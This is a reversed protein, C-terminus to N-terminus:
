EKRMKEYMQHMKIGACVLAVPLHELVPICKMSTLAMFTGMQGGVFARAKAELGRAEIERHYPIDPTRDEPLGAVSGKKQIHRMRQFSAEAVSDYGCEAAHVAINALAVLREPTGVGRSRFETAAYQAFHFITMAGITINQKKMTAAIGSLTEVYGLFQDANETENIKDVLALADGSDYVAAKAAALAQIFQPSKEGAAAINPIDQIRGLIERAKRCPRGEHRACEGAVYAYGLGRTLDDAAKGVLEVAGDIREAGMCAQVCAAFMNIVDRNEPEASEAFRIFNDSVMKALADNGLYAACCGIDMWTSFATMPNKVSVAIELATKILDGPTPKNLTEGLKERLEKEDRERLQGIMEAPIAFNLNDERAFTTVGVLRGEADFLGGGSSGPSIDANTQILPGPLVHLTHLLSSGVPPAWLRSVIGDSLTGGLNRPVGIAYVPQGVNLDKASGIKVPPLNLGKTELLCMDRDSAAVIKAEVPQRTESQDSNAPWVLIRGGGDVVHCNTVVLNDGVVVGSGEGDHTHVAIKDGQGGDTRVVVISGIAERYIKEAAGINEGKGGGGGVEAGGDAMCVLPSSFTRVTRRAEIAMGGGLSLREGGERVVRLKGRRVAKRMRRNLPFEPSVHITTM